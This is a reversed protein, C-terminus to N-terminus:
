TATAVCLGVVMAAARRRTLQWVMRRQTFCPRRSPSFTPSRTSTSSDEMAVGAAHLARVGPLDADRYEGRGDRVQAPL